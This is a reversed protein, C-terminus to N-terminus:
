RAPRAHSRCPEPPAAQQVGAAQRRQLAQASHLLEGDYHRPRLPLFEPDAQIYQVQLSWTSLTGHHRAKRQWASDTVRCGPRGRSMHTCAAEEAGEVLHVCVGVSSASCGLLAGTALPGRWGAGGTPLVPVM